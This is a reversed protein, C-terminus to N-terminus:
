LAAEEILRDLEALVEAHTSRDNFAALSTSSKETYLHIESLTVWLPEEPFQSLLAGVLCYCSPPEVFGKRGFQLSEGKANRGFAEKTWNREDDILARAAILASKTIM